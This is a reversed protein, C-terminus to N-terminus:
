RTARKFPGLRLGDCAKSFRIEFAFLKTGDHSDPAGHFSVTLPVPAQPAACDPAMSSPSCDTNAFAPTTTRGAALPLALCAAPLASVLHHVTKLNKLIRM